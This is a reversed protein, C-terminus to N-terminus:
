SLNGKVVVNTPTPTTTPSSAPRSHPGPVSATTEQGDRHSPATVQTVQRIGTTPLPPPAAASPQAPHPGKHISADSRVIEGTELVQKLRRLDGKIQPKTLLKALRMSPAQGFLGLEIQVRVETMDRGPARAFTVEGQHALAGGEVTRWAIKEGPRDETIEADWAVSRFLM